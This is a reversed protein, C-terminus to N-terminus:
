LVTVGEKTIVVNKRGSSRGGFPPIARGNVELSVANANGLVLELKEKASWSEFRGRKLIGQFVAQGDNKVQVYCDQKARVTVRVMAAPKEEQAAAKVASEQSAAKEKKVPLASVAKKERLAAPSSAKPRSSMVQRRQGLFLAFQVLLFIGAIVAFVVGILKWPLPKAPGKLSVGASSSEAKSVPVEVGSRGLRVTPRPESYNPIVEAPDVGLFKCYLKLFGKMYVPNLNALNEEEIAKLVSPHIKTKEHVEDLSLGKELRVQKLRAGQSEM